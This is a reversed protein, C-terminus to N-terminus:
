VKLETPQQATHPHEASKYVKLRKIRQDRLKNDPLMGAVARAVIREPNQNIEQEFSKTKLGGPYGSHRHYKKDTYKKGTVKIHRANIIIVGDGGDVHPTYTPKHKGTLTRAVVTALRGLTVGSADVIFWERTVEAPKQSHTKM